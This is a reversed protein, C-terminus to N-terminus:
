TYGNYSRLPLQTVAPKLELFGIRKNYLSHNLSFM